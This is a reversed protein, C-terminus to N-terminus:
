AATATAKKGVKKVKAAPATVPAAGKEAKATAKALKKAEKEAEALKAAKAAAREEKKAEREKAAADIRALMEAAEKEKQAKKAAKQEETMKPRGPKRPAAAPDAPVAAPAKVAKEKKPAAPVVEEATAEAKKLNQRVNYVLAPVVKLLGVSRCHSVVEAATVGPHAADYERIVQSATQGNATRERKSVTVPQATDEKVTRPRGPSRKPAPAEVAAAAPTAVARPKKTDITSTLSDILQAVFYQRLTNQASHSLTSLIATANTTNTMIYPKGKRYIKINTRKHTITM